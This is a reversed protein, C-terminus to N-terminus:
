SKKSTYNFTNVPFPQNEVLTTNSLQMDYATSNGINGDARVATTSAGTTYPNAYWRFWTATTGTGCAALCTGTWTEAGAKSLVGDTSTGMELGNTAVGGTFAGGNVTVKALLTGTETDDATAPQSAGGFICIIGDQMISKVSGTQNLANVFGTSYREAM